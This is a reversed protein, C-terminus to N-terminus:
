PLWGMPDDPQQTDGRITGRTQSAIAARTDEMLPPPVRVRHAKGVLLIGGTLLDRRVRDVNRFAIRDPRGRQTVEIVSTDTVALHRLSLHERLYVLLAPSFIAAVPKWLSAIPQRWLEPAFLSVGGLVVAGALLTWLVPTFNVRDKYGWWVLAEGTRLQQALELPVTGPSLPAGPALRRRGTNPSTPVGGESGGGGGGDILQLTM